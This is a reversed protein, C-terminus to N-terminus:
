IMKMKLEDGDGVLVLVVVVLAVINNEDNHYLHEYFLFPLKM